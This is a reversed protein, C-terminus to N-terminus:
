LMLYKTTTHAEGNYTVEAANMILKKLEKRESKTLVVEDYDYDYVGTIHLDCLTAEYETWDQGAGNGNRYPTVNLEFEAYVTFRNGNFEAEGTQEDTELTWNIDKFIDTTM